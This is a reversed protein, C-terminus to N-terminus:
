GRLIDLVKKMHNNECYEQECKQRANRGLRISLDYDDIFQQLKQAMEEANKMEFLMGTENDDVIEALSGIRSAVVPKGYAYAEIATNPMNEYWIAPCVICTSASILDELEQGKKFGTFVIKEELNPLRSIAM